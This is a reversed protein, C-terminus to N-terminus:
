PRGQPVPGPPGLIRAAKGEFAALVDGEGFTDHAIQNAECGHTMAMFEQAPLLARFGPFVVESNQRLTKSQRVSYNM